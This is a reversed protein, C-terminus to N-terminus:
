NGGSIFKSSPTQRACDYLPCEPFTHIMLVRLFEGVCNPQTELLTKHSFYLYWPNNKEIIGPQSLIFKCKKLHTTKRKEERKKKEEKGM